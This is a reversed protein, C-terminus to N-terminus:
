RRPAVFPLFRGVPSRRPLAEHRDLAAGLAEGGGGGASGSHEPREMFGYRVEARAVGDSIPAAATAAQPAGHRGIQDVFSSDLDTLGFDRSDGRGLRERRDAM